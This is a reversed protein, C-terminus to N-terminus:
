GSRWRKAEAASVRAHDAWVLDRRRILVRDRSPGEGVITDGDDTRMGVFAHAELPGGEGGRLVRVAARLRVGRLVMPARASADVVAALKPKVSARWWAVKGSVAVHTSTAMSRWVRVADDSTDGDAFCVDASLAAGWRRRSEWTAWEYAARGLGLGRMRADVWSHRVVAVGDRRAGLRVLPAMDNVCRFRDADTPPDEDGLSFWGPWVGRARVVVEGVIGLRGQTAHVTFGDETALVIVVKVGTPVRIAPPAHKAAM